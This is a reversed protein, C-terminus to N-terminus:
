SIDINCASYSMRKKLDKLKCILRHIDTFDPGCLKRPLRSTAPPSKQLKLSLLPASYQHKRGNKLSIKKNNATNQNDKAAYCLSIDLLIIVKIFLLIRSQHMSSLSMALSEKVSGKNSITRINM